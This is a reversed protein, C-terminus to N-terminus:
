EGEPKSMSPHNQAPSHEINNQPNPQQERQEPPEVKSDETALPKGRSGNDKSGVCGGM